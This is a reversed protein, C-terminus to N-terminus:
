NWGGFRGKLGIRKTRAGVFCADYYGARRYGGCKGPGYVGDGRNDSYLLNGPEYCTKGCLSRGCNSLTWM